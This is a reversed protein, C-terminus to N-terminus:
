LEDKEIAAAYADRLAFWREWVWSHALGQAADDLGEM